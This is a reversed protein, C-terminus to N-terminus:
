ALEAMHLAIRADNAAKAQRDLAQVDDGAQRPMSTLVLGTPSGGAVVVEAEKPLM